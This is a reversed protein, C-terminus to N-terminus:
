AQLMFLHVYRVTVQELNTAVALSRDGEGVFKLDIIEENYGILRKVLKLDKEGSELTDSTYFLLRQDSTVCMIERQSPLWTAAIFGGKLDDKNSSVTADSM